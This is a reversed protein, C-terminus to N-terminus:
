ERTKAKVFRYVFRDTKRRIRDDFVVLTRDDAPNRLLCLADEFVFGASEIDVRAFAEDIRHLQQAARIGTDPLASHDVVALVGGPKLARHLQAFFHARDIRPHKPDSESVYYVDHYVLVMLIIDYAEIRLKLDPPNSILRQVNPLRDNLYRKVLADRSYKEQIDNTHAVVVGGAGVAYSLIESYYGGGSLLDLVRMGPELGFFGLVAAPKSTKDRERDAPSRRDDSVSAAIANESFDASVLSSACLATLLVLAAIAGVMVAQNRETAM